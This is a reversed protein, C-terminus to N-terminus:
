GSTCASMEVDQNKYRSGKPKKPQLKSRLNELKRLIRRGGTEHFEKLMLYAVLTFFTLPLWTVVYIWFEKAIVFQRNQQNFAFFNM